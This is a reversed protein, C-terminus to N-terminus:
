LQGKAIRHFSASVAWDLPKQKPAGISIIKQSIEDYEKQYKSAIRNAEFIAKFAGGDEGVGLTVGESEFKDKLYVFFNTKETGVGNVVDEKQGKFLGGNPYPNESKETRPNWRKRDKGLRVIKMLDIQGSKKYLPLSRILFDKRSSADMVSDSEKHPLSDDMSPIQAM